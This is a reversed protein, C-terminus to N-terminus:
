GWPLKLARAPYTMCREPNLAENGPISKLPFGDSNRGPTTEPQEYESNVSDLTQYSGQQFM